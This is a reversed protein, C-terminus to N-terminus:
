PAAATASPSPTAPRRHAPKTRQRNAPRTSTPLPPLSASPTPAPSPVTGPAVGYSAPKHGALLKSLAQVVLIQGTEYNANDVSSVEIGTNGSALEDIASGPGSGPFSGALVAGQSAVGLQQTISILALNAPDAAGATPPTAPMIVVALTAPTLVPKSVQLFGGQAFGALIAHSQTTSLAPGDNTVIAAALVRGAETQGYLQPNATPQPSQGAVLTGPPVLQALANLSHETTASTDFFQPQLEVQATVVGGAQRVAATVGSTVQPMAGPAVVLVVSQGDLLHPLLVPAAAQAFSQDNNIQQQLQSNQARLSDATARASEELRSLKSEIPGNLATTGLVIGIALALFVAIISVLHYRFDIM